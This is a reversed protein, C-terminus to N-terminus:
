PSVISKRHTIMSMQGLSEGLFSTEPLKKVLDQQYDKEIEEKSHVATSLDVSSSSTHSIASEEAIVTISIVSM